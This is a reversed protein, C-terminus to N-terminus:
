YKFDSYSVKTELNMSAKGVRVITYRINSLEAKMKINHSLSVFRNNSANIKATIKVSTTNITM